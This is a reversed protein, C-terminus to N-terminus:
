EMIPSTALVFCAVIFVFIGVDVLFTFLRQRMTQAPILIPLPKPKLKSNNISGRVDPDTWWLMVNWCVVMLMIWLLVIVLTDM